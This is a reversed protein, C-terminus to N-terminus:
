SRRHALHGHQRLPQPQPKPLGREGDLGAPGRGVAGDAAQTGPAHGPGQGADARREESRRHQAPGRLLRSQFVPDSHEPRRQRGTLQIVVLTRDGGAVAAARALFGPMGSVASAALASLKLFDRRHM